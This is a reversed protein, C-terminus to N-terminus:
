RSSVVSDWDVEWDYKLRERVATPPRPTRRIESDTPPRYIVSEPPHFLKPEPGPGLWQGTEYCYKGLMLKNRNAGKMFLAEQFPIERYSPLKSRAEEIPSMRHDVNSKRKVVIAAIAVTIVTLIFAGIVVGLILTTHEMKNAPPPETPPDLPVVVLTNGDLDNITIQGSDIMRKLEDAAAKLAKEDALHGHEPNPVLDFNVEISGKKVQLNQVCDLPVRMAIGLQKTLHEEFKKKRSGVVEDYNADITFHFPIITSETTAITTQYQSVTSDQSTRTSSSHSDKPEKTSASEESESRDSSMFINPVTNEIDELATTGEASTILPKIVRNGEVDETIGQDNSRTSLMITTLPGVTSQYSKTTSKEEEPTITTLSLPNDGFDEYEVEVESKSNMNPSPTPPSLNNDASEDSQSSTISNSTATIISKNFSFPVITFNVESNIDDTESDRKGFVDPPKLDSSVDITLNNKSKTEFSISKMTTVNAGVTANISGSVGSAEGSTGIKVTGTVGIKSNGPFGVAPRLGFEKSVNLTVKTDEINVEINPQLNFSQNKTDLSVPSPLLEPPNLTFRDENDMGAMNVDIDDLQDPLPFLSEKMIRNKKNLNSDFDRREEDFSSLDRETRIVEGGLTDINNAPQDADVTKETHKLVDRETRILLDEIKQEEVSDISPGKEHLNINFNNIPSSNTLFDTNALNSESVETVALQKTSSIFEKEIYDPLTTRETLFSEPQNRENVPSYTSAISVRSFSDLEREFSSTISEIKIDRQKVSNIETKQELNDVDSSTIPIKKLPEDLTLDIKGYNDTVAESIITSYKREFIEELGPTISTEKSSYTKSDDLYKTNGDTEKLYNKTTHTPTSSFDNEFREELWKLSNSSVETTMKAGSISKDNKELSFIDVASHQWPSNLDKPKMYSVPTSIFDNPFYTESDSAIPDFPKSPENTIKPPTVSKAEIEAMSYPISTTKDENTSSHFVFTSYAKFDNQPFSGETTVEKEPFLPIKNQFNTQTGDPDHYSAEISMDALPSTGFLETISIVSADSSELMTNASGISATISDDQQVSKSDESSQRDNPFFTSKNQDTESKDTESPTMQAFPTTRFLDTVQYIAVSSPNVATSNIPVTTIPDDQQVSKSDESTHRNEPFFPLKNQFDKESIESEYTTTERFLETITNIDASPLNITKSNITDDTISDNQQASKSDKTTQRNEPFFPLNNRFGIEPKETEHITMEVFPTARFLETIPNIVFSPSDVTMSNISVATILDEQQISKTDELTQMNKPFFPLKNQFGTESKESEYTTMERFLETIPNIGTSPLDIERSNITAAATSDDQQVFKSDESIQRNEPFSDESIHRNEPFFSLKNQINKENKESEPTTVEVFSTAQFLETIPNIAVSPLDVAVSNITVATISNDQQVSKSDESTQKHKPFFSSENQFSIETKDSERHTMPAFSTTRFLETVPKIEVSSPYFAMSNISLATISDDQQVSKSDESTQKNEPFFPLKNQFGEESIESKYTATGRFLETIPNIDDSSPNITKSNTTDGTISVDQQASKSDKTTERNEPFFPLNNRFGIEPKEAEDNTIEAFPEETEFLEIIPTIAVSSSDSAKSTITVITKSDDPQVPKPDDSSEKSVPYLHTNNQFSMEIRDSEHTTMEAILTTKLLKSIPNIAVSFPHVTKSFDTTLVVSNDVEKNVFPIQIDNTETFANRTNAKFNIENSNKYEVAPEQHFTETTDHLVAKSVVSYSDIKIDNSPVNLTTFNNKSFTTSSPPTVIDSLSIKKNFNQTFNLNKKFTSSNLHIGLDSTHNDTSTNYNFINWIVSSNTLQTKSTATSIIESVEFSPKFYFTANPFDQVDKSEEENNGDHFQTRRIIETENNSSTTVNNITNETIMTISEEDSQTNSQSLQKTNEDLLENSVGSVPYAESDVGHAQRANEYDEEFELEPYVNDPSMDNVDSIEFSEEALLKESSNTEFHKVEESITDDTSVKFFISNDTVMNVSATNTKYTEIYAQSTTFAESSVFTKLSMNVDVETSDDLATSINQHFLDKSDSEKDHSVTQGHIEKQKFNKDGLSFINNSETFKENYDFDIFTPEMPDTIIEESERMFKLDTFTDKYDNINFEKEHDTQVGPIDFHATSIEEPKIAEEMTLEINVTDHINKEEYHGESEEVSIKESGDDAVNLNLSDSSSISEKLEIGTFISPPENEAISEDIEALNSETVANFPNLIDYNLDTPVDINEALLSKPILSKKQIESSFDGSEAFPFTESNNLFPELPENFEYQDELKESSNFYLLIEDTTINNVDEIFEETFAVYTDSPIGLTQADSYFEDTDEEPFEKRHVDNSNESFLTVNIVSNQVPIALVVSKNTLTKYDTSNFIELELANFTFYTDSTVSANIISSNEKVIPKKIRESNNFFSNKTNNLNDLHVLDVFDTINGAQNNTRNYELSINTRNSKYTLTENQIDPIKDGSFNTLVNKGPNQLYVHNPNGSFPKDFVLKDDVTEEPSDKLPITYTSVSNLTPLASTKNNSMDKSITTNRNLHLQEKFVETTVEGKNRFKLTTQKSVNELAGSIETDIEPKGANAEIFPNSHFIKANDNVPDIGTTFSINKRMETPTLNEKSNIDLLTDKGNQVNSNLNTIDSNKQANNCYMKLRRTKLFKIFYDNQPSYTSYPVKSQEFSIKESNPHNQLFKMLVEKDKSNSVNQTMHNGRNSPNSSNEWMHHGSSYQAKRNKKNWIDQLSSCFKSTCNLNVANAATSTLIGEKQCLIKWVSCLLNNRDREGKQGSHGQHLNSKSENVLMFGILLCILQGYVYISVKPGLM